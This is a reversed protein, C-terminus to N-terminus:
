PRTVILPERREIEAIVTAVDAREFDHDELTDRLTAVMAAFAEHGIALHAHIRQLHEDTYSGPGGMMSSIFRSQHDVLRAMEVDEFYPSLIPSELVRDYFDSVVRRVSAFGGSREFITQRM